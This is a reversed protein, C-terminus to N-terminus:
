PKNDVVNAVGEIMDQPQIEEAVLNALCEQKICPLCAQEGSVGLCGHGCDKAKTCFNNFKTLDYLDVM